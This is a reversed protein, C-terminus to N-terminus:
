MSRDTLVRVISGHGGIEFAQKLNTMSPKVSLWYNVREHWVLLNSDRYTEPRAMGKYVFKMLMDISEISFSKLLAAAESPKVAALTEMVTALLEDQLHNWYTIKM